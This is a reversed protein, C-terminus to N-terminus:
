NKKKIVERTLSSKAIDYLDQQNINKLKPNLLKLYSIEELVDVNTIIKDDVKLIIEIKKSEAKVPFCFIILIILLARVQM